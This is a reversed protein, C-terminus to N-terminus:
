SPARSASRSPPSSGSRTASTSRRLRDGARRRLLLPVRRIRGRVQPDLPGPDQGGRRRLGRRDGRRRGPHDGPQAQAARSRTQDRAKEGGPPRDPQRQALRRGQPAGDRHPRQDQLGGRPRDRGPRRRGPPPDPLRLRGHAAGHRRPGKPRRPHLHLVRPGLPGGHLQGQDAARHDRRESQGDPRADRGAPPDTQVLRPRGLQGDHLDPEARRPQGGDGARGRRHGPELAGHGGRPAGRRHHLRRRVPGPDRGDGERLSRPDGGQEPPSVVNNKSVTIGAQSAYHFGLDKFADLVQSVAPAGYAEVLDSVM